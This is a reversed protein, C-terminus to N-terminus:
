FNFEKGTAGGMMGSGQEGHMSKLMHDSREIMENMHKMMENINMM